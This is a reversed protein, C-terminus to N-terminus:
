LSCKMQVTSWKCPQQRSSTNKTLESYVKYCQKATISMIGDKSTVSSMVTAFFTMFSIELNFEDPKFM